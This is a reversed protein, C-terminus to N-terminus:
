QSVKLWIEVFFLNFNQIRYGYKWVTSFKSHKGRFYVNIPLIVANIQLYFTM